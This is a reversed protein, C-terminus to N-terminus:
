DVSSTEEPEDLVDLWGDPYGMLQTVWSPNLRGHPKGLTNPNEPDPQGTEVQESLPRANSEMTAQSAKGNKWDRGTPTPWCEVMGLLTPKKTGDERRQYTGTLVKPTPWSGCGTENIRPESRGLVSWSRGAPTAKENWHISFPTLARLESLLCMKLSFGIPDLDSSSGGCSGGSSRGRARSDSAKVRAPFIRARSDALSSTLGDSRTEFLLLQYEESM